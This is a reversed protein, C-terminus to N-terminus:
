RTLVRSKPWSFLKNTKQNSEITPKPFRIFVLTERLSTLRVRSSKSSQQRIIPWSISKWTQKTKRNSRWLVPHKYGLIEERSRVVKRAKKLCSPENSFRKKKLKFFIASRFFLKPAIEAVMADFSYAMCLPWDLRTNVKTLSEGNEIIKMGKLGAIIILKTQILRLNCRQLDGKSAARSQRRWHRRRRRRGDADSRGKRGNTRHKNELTEKAM